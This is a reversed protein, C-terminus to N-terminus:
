RRERVPRDGRPRKDHMANNVKRAEDYGEDGATFVQGRTRERLDDIM